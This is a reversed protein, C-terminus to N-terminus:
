PPTGMRTITVFSAPRARPSTRVATPAGAGACSRRGCAGFRSGFGASWIGVSLTFSGGPNVISSHALPMEFARESARPSRPVIKTPVRKAPLTYATTSRPPV